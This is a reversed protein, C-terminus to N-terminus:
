ELLRCLAQLALGGCVRPGSGAFVPHGTRGGYTEAGFPQQTVQLTLVQCISVRSLDQNGVAPLNGNADDASAFSRPIEV